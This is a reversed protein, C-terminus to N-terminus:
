IIIHFDDTDLVPEWVHHIASRALIYAYYADSISREHDFCGGLGLCQPLTKTKNQWMNRNGRMSCYSHNTTHMTLITGEVFTVILKVNKTGHYYKM